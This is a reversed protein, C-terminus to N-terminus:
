RCFVNLRDPKPIPWAAPTCTELDNRTRPERDGLEFFATVSWREFIARYIQASGTEFAEGRLQLVSHLRLDCQENGLM